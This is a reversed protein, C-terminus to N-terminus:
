SETATAIYGTPAQSIASPAVVGLENSTAIVATAPATVIVSDAVNM